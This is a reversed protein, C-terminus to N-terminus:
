KAFKSIDSQKGGAKKWKEIKSINGKFADPGYYKGKYQGKRQRSRRRESKAQDMTRLTGGSKYPNPADYNGKMGKVNVKVKRQAAKEYKPRAMGGYGSSKEKGTLRYGKANKKEQQELGYKATETVAMAGLAAPGAGRLFKGFRYARSAGSTGKTAARKAVEKGTSSRKALKSNRVAVERGKNPNALREKAMRDAAKKIRRKRAASKGAKAAAASGVAAASAASGTRKRRRSSRIPDDSNQYPM